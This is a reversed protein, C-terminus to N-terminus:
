DDYSQFLDGKYAKYFSIISHDDCLYTSWTVVYKERVMAKFEPVAM